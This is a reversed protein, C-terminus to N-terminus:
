MLASAGFSASAYQSIRGGAFKIFVVRGAAYIKGKQNPRILCPAKPAKHILTKLQEM